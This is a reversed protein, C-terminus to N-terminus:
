LGPVSDRPRLCAAWAAPMGPGDVQLGLFRRLKSPKRLPGAGGEEKTKLPPPGSSSTSAAPSAVATIESPGAPAIRRNASGGAAGANSSSSSGKLPPARADDEVEKDVKEKPLEKVLRGELSRTPVCAHM